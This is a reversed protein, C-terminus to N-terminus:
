RRMKLDSSVADPWYRPTSLMSTSPAAYAPVITRDIVTGASYTVEDTVTESADTLQRTSGQGDFHHFSETGGRNQSVVSGYLEPEQTYEATVEGNEDTEMLVNDSLEDWVYHTVGM